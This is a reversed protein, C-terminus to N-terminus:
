ALCTEGGADARCFTPNGFTVYDMNNTFVPNTKLKLLLAESPIPLILLSEENTVSLEYTNEDDFWVQAKSMVQLNQNPQANYVRTTFLNAGPPVNFRVTSWQSSVAPPFVALCSSIGPHRADCADVGGHTRNVFVGQERAVANTTFPLTTLDVRTACRHSTIQDNVRPGNICMKRGSTDNDQCANPSRENSCSGSNPYHDNSIKNNNNNNNNGGLRLSANLEQLRQDLAMMEGIVDVGNFLVRGDSNSDAGTTLHLNGQADSYVASTSAMEDPADGGSGRSDDPLSIALLLFSVLRMGKKLLM